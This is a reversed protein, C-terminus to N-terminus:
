YRPRPRRRRRRRLTAQLGPIKAVAPHLVSGTTEFETPAEAAAERVINPVFSAIVRGPDYEHAETPVPTAERLASVGSRLVDSPDGGREKAARAAAGLAYPIAYPGLAAALYPNEHGFLYGMALLASGPLQRAAATKLSADTMKRVGPLFGVGPTREIGRELINMGTRAFPVFLRAIPGGATSFGLVGKGLKSRPSGTFTITSAEEASIGARQLAAKTATDM